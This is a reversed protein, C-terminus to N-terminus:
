DACAGPRPRSTRRWRRVSRWSCWSRPPSESVLRGRGAVRSRRGAVRPCSAGLVARREPAPRRRACWALRAPSDREQRLIATELRTCRRSPSSASRRPSCASGPPCSRSRRRRAGRAYLALMRQRAAARAVPAAAILQELEGVVEPAPRVPSRRRHPARARGAAARRAARRVSGRLSTPCTPSRQGRWLALAEHLTSAASTPEERAARGVLAQFRHLDLRHTDVRVAYGRGRTEIAGRGLVKRLDSVYGQLINQATPPPDDGWIEDILRSGPVVENARVLLLALLAQQAPRRADAAPRRPHGRRPRARQVRPVHLSPVAPTWRDDLLAACSRDELSLLSVMFAFTPANDTSAANSSTGTCAASPAPEAPVAPHPGFSESRSQGFPYM